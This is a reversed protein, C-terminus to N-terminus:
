SSRLLFFLVAGIGVLQPTTLSSLFGAGVVEPTPQASEESTSGQSKGQSNSTPTKTPGSGTPQQQKSPGQGSPEPTAGTPQDDGTTSVENGTPPNQRPTDNHLEVPNEPRQPKRGGTPDDEPIRAKRFDEVDPLGDFGTTKAQDEFTDGTKLVPRNSIGSGSSILSM